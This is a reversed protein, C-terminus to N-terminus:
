VIVHGTGNVENGYTKVKYHLPGQRNAKAAEAKDAM